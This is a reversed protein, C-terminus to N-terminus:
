EGCTELLGVNMRAYVRCTDEGRYQSCERRRKLFVLLSEDLGDVGRQMVEVTERGVAKKVDDGRELRRRRQAFM